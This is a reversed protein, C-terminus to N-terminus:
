LLKAIDGENNNKYLILRRLVNFAMLPSIRILLNFFHYLIFNKLKGYRYFRKYYRSLHYSLNFKRDSKMYEVMLSKIIGPFPIWLQDVTLIKNRLEIEEDYPMRIDLISIFGDIIRLNIPTYGKPAGLGRVIVKNSNVVYDQEKINYLLILWQSSCSYTRSISEHFFRIKDMNYVNTSLFISAGWTDISQILGKKGYYQQTKSRVKHLSHPSYFNIRLTDSYIGIENFIVDIANPEIQDDDSLTWLWKTECYEFCRCINADGGINVKNRLISYQKSNLSSLLDIVKDEVKEDSHNDVIILKCMDNMQPVLLTITHRLQEIRNYTPIAITLKM